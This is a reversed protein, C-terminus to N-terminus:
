QRGSARQNGATAYTGQIAGDEDCDMSSIVDSSENPNDRSDNDSFCVFSRVSENMQSVM